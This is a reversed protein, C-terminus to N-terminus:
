LGSGLSVFSVYCAPGGEQDAAGQRSQCLWVERPPEDYLDLMAMRLMDMRRKETLERRALDMGRLISRAVISMAVFSHSGRLGAQSLSDAVTDWTVHWLIDLAVAFAAIQFHDPAADPCIWSRLSLWDHGSARASERERLSM